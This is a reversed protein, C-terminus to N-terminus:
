LQPSSLGRQPLPDTDQGSSTMATWEKPPKAVALKDSPVFITKGLPRVPLTGKRLRKLRGIGISYYKPDKETGVSRRDHIAAALLTSGVGCFPDFVLDHPDTFALVCREVLEVPFQCPQITKEQHHAKVNPIDWVEAEWDQKVLAWLDAPNKGRPNGSPKGKKPGKYHLKGPYKSPIRVDDLHFKYNATKTFWLLTQYRGSFRKSAHLGHEYHWIIRNRLTFGADKFIPYFIYDLPIMEGRVYRSGVQWCVSGDDRLVRRLQEIIRFYFEEYEEDTLKSEYEKGINYPPSSVVLNVCRDPMTPLFRETDGRNFVVFDESSFRTGIRRPIQSVTPIYQEQDKRM